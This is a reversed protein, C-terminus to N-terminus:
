SRYSRWEDKSQFPWYENALPSRSWLVTGVIDRLNDICKIIWPRGFDSQLPWENESELFAIWREFTEVGKASLQNPPENKHRRADSYIDPMVKLFEYCATDRKAGEALIDDLAFNDINCKIYDLFAQAVARRQEKHIAM